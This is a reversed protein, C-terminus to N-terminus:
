WCYRASARTASARPAGSASSSATSSAYKASLTRAPIACTTCGRKAAAAYTGVQSAFHRHVRQDTPTPTIL